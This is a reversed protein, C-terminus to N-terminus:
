RYSVLGLKEMFNMIKLENLIPPPDLSLKTKRFYKKCKTPHKMNEDIMKCELINVETLGTYQPLVWYLPWLIYFCINKALDLNYTPYVVRSRYRRVQCM